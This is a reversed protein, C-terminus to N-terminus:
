FFVVRLGSGGGLCYVLEQKSLVENDLIIQEDWEVMQLNTEYMCYVFMCVCVCWCICLVCVSVCVCVCM